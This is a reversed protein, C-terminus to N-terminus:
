VAAAPTPLLQNNHGAPSTQATSTTATGQEVMKEAGHNKGHIGNAHIQSNSDISNYETFKGSQLQLRSLDCKRLSWLHVLAFVPKALVDLIGYFVM